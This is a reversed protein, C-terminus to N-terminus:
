RIVKRKEKKRLTLFNGGRKRQGEERLGSTTAKKNLLQNEDEKEIKKGTLYGNGSPGRV